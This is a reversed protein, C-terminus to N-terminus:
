FRFYIFPNYTGATLLMVSYLFVVTLFLLEALSYKWMKELRGCRAAVAQIGGCGLIAPIMVTVYKASFTIPLSFLNEIGYKWPTLMTLLYQGCGALTTMVLAGSMVVAAAANKNVFIKRM